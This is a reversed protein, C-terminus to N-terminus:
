TRTPNSMLYASQHPHPFGASNRTKEYEFCTAHMFSRIPSNCLSEKKLIIYVILNNNKILIHTLINLLCKNKTSTAKDSTMHNASQTGFSVPNTTYVKLVWLKRCMFSVFKNTSIKTIHFENTTDKLVFTVSTIKVARNRM